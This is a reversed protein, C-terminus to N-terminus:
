VVLQGVSVCRRNRMVFGFDCRNCRDKSKKDCLSEPTGNACTCVNKECSFIDENFLAFYKKSALSPCYVYFLRLYAKM